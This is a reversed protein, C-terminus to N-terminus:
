ANLGFCISVRPVNEATKREPYYNNTPTIWIRNRNAEPRSLQYSENKWTRHHHSCLCCFLVFNVMKGNLLCRNTASSLKMLLAWMKLFVGFNKWIINWGYIIIAFPLCFIQIWTWMIMRAKAMQSPSSEVYVYIRHIKDARWEQITWCPHKLSSLLHAFDWRGSQIYDFLVKSIIFCKSGFIDDQYDQFPNWILENNKFVLLLCFFFFFLLLVPLRSFYCM